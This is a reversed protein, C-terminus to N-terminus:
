EHDETQGEGQYMLCQLFWIEFKNLINKESLGSKQESNQNKYSTSVQFASFDM